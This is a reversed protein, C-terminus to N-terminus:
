RYSNVLKITYFMRSKIHGLEHGILFMIEHDNLLDIAGSSLVVIPHDVGITFGNIHYGWTIYFDPIAPLNIIDCATELLDFIKPYTKRTIHLNSGTYQVTIIKEVAYKNYQRLLLDLGPTNKLTDLAKADFEHEYEFPHLDHIKKLKTKYEDEM